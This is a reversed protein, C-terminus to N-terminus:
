SEEEAEDGLGTALTQLSLQRYCWFRANRTLSFRLLDETPASQKRSFPEIM